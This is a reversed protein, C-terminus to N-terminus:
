IFYGIMLGTSLFPLLPFSENNSRKKAKNTLLQVTIAFVLGIMYGIVGGYFGLSLAAATSLKIDAGGIGGKKAFMAIAMQPIFVGLAGFVMSTVGVEGFNVLSLILLMVWLFEDAQHENVDQVSAYLLILSLVIGKVTWMSFGGVFYLAGVIAPLLLYTLYPSYAFGRQDIYYNMLGGVIITLFVLAAFPIAFSLFEM